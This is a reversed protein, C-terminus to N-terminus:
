RVFSSAGETSTTTKDLGKGVLGELGKKRIYNEVFRHVNRCAERFTPLNYVFHFPM